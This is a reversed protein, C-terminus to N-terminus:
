KFMNCDYTTYQIRWLVLKTLEHLFVFSTYSTNSPCYYVQMGVKIDNDQIHKADNFRVCYHPESVSGFVDFIKGLAKTGKNVFLITDLNLTPEGPKPKIVVLQEM